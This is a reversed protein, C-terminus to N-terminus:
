TRELLENMTSLAEHIRALREPPLTKLAERLLPIGGLPTQAVLDRGQDTIEVMVVRNDTPSRTRTVYGRKKLGAIMTSTSSDSICLYDSLQGVTLPGAEALYRLTSVKRGSIGEQQMQWGYHRVYRYFSLFEQITERYLRDYRGISPDTM